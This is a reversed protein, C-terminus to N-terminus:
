VKFENEILKVADNYWLDHECDACEPETCICGTLNKKLLSIVMNLTKQTAFVGVRKRENILWRLVEAEAHVTGKGKVYNEFIEADTPIDFEELSEKSDNNLM